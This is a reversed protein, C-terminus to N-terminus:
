EPLVTGTAAAMGSMRAGTGLDGDAQGSRLRASGGRSRSAASSFNTGVLHVNRAVHNKRTCIVPKRGADRIMKYNKIADYGADLMVRGTSDPGSVPVPCGGGREGQTLALAVGVVHRSPPPCGLTTIGARHRSAHSQRHLTKGVSKVTCSQQM